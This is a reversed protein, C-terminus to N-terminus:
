FDVSSSFTLTQVNGGFEVAPTFPDTSAITSDGMWTIRYSLGGKVDYRGFRMLGSSVGLGVSNRTSDVLVASDGETISPQLSYGLSVSWTGASVKLGAAFSVTDRLKTDRNEAPILPPIVGLDLLLRVDPTNSKFRSWAEWWSSGFLAVHPGFPIMLSVSAMAPTYHDIFDLTLLTDGNVVGPVDVHATVNLSVPSYMEGRAYLGLRMRQGAISPGEVLIGAKPTVRPSVVAQLAVDGYREGRVGVEMYLSPISLDMFVSAGFGLAVRGFNWSLAVDAALRHPFNDYMIYRPEYPPIAQFRFLFQDPLHLTIGAHLKPALSVAAGMDSGRYDLVGADKGNLRLSNWSFSYAAGVGTANYVLAPNGAASAWPALHTGRSSFCLSSDASGVGFVDWPGALLMVMLVAMM